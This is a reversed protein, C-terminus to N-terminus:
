KKSHIYRKNNNNFLAVISYSVIENARHIHRYYYYYYNINVNNIQLEILQYQLTTTNRHM